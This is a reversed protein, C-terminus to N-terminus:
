PSAVSSTAEGERPEIINRFPGHGQNLLYRVGTIWQQGGAERGQAMTLLVGASLGNPCNETKVFCFCFCSPSHCVSVFELAGPYGPPM